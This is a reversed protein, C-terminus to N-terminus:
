SRMKNAIIRRKARDAMARALVAESIAGCGPGRMLRLGPAIERGVSKFSRGEGVIVDAPVTVDSVELLEWAADFKDEDWTKGIEVLQLRTINYGVSVDGRLGGERQQLYDRTPTAEIEPVTVDCRYLGSSEEHWVNQVMGVPRSWDHDLHYRCQGAEARAFDALPPPALRVMGMWGEPLYVESAFSLDKLEM